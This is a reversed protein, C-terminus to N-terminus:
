RRIMFKWTAPPDRTRGKIADGGLAGCNEEVAELKGGGVRAGDDNLRVGEGDRTDDGARFGAEIERNLV